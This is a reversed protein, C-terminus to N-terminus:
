LDDWGDDNSLEAIATAKGEEERHTRHVRHGKESQSFSSSNGVHNDIRSDLQADFSMPSMPTMPQDDEIAQLAYTNVGWKGNPRQKTMVFEAIRTGELASVARALYQRGRGQPDLLHCVETSLDAVTTPQNGHSNWWVQFIEAKRLRHPDSQKAESIRLVPDVCGLALLPDRVWACWQEFGGLTRGKALSSQLGWRWITLCAALLETRHDTIEKVIDGKFERTEPDEVKADFRVEIFRRALDESVILGNGTAAIFASSSLRVTRSQGLIRTEAPNETLVSALLDSKLTLGNMNDLLLCSPNGMLKSAIRKELEDGNQGSTIASPQSRFAIACICRVLKGKGSGAGSIEAARVLLAPSLSLSARVVATIIAALCSSEDANPPHSTDVVYNGYEDQLTQADAFPFTKIVSRLLQLATEADERMPNMPVMPGVDPVGTLYFGEEKNYGNTDNISGDPGLLPSSIIAKLFPLTLHYNGSLYMAALERPFQIDKDEFSGNNNKIIYPRSKKHAELIIRGADVGRVLALGTKRDSIIEVISSNNDYFVNNNGIVSALADITKDPNARDVLLKHKTNEAVSKDVHSVDSNRRKKALYEEYEAQQKPGWAGTDESSIYDEDEGILSETTTIEINTNDFDNLGAPAGDLAEPNGTKDTM